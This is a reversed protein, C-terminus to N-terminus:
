QNDSEDYFFADEESRSFIINELTLSNVVSNSIQGVINTRGSRGTPQGIITMNSLKVNTLSTDSMSNSLLSLPSSSKRSIFGNLLKLNSITSRNISSSLLGEVGAFKIGSLDISVDTLEKNSITYFLQDFPAGTTKLNTFTVNRWHDNIDLLNKFSFENHISTNEFTIKELNANTLKYGRENQFNLNNISNGNGNITGTLTEVLTTTNTCDLDNIIDVYLPNNNENYINVLQDCSTVAYYDQAFLTSPFATTISFTILPLIRQM